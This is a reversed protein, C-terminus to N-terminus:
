VVATFVPSPSDGGSLSIGRLISSLSILVLCDTPRELFGDNWHSSYQTHRLKWCNDLDDSDEESDSDESDETDESNDSDDSNEPGRPGGSGGSGGSGSLIGLVSSTEVRVSGNSAGLGYLTHFQAAQTRSKSPMKPPTV